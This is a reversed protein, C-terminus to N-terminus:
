SLFISTWESIMLIFNETEFSSIPLISSIRSLSRFDIFCTVSIYSYSVTVAHHFLSESLPSFVDADALHVTGEDEDLADMVDAIVLERFDDIRLPCTRRPTSARSRALSRRDDLHELPRGAEGDGFRAHPEPALRELEADADLHEPADEVAQALRDVASGGGIASSIISTFPSGILGVARSYGRLNMWVPMEAISPMFVSTRPWFSGIKEPVPRGCLLITACIVRCAFIM